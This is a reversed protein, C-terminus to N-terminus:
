QVVNAMFGLFRSRFILAFENLVTIELFVSIAYTSFHRHTHTHTQNHSQYGYMM